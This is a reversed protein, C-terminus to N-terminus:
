VKESLIPALNPLFPAFPIDQEASHVQVSKLRVDPAEPGQHVHFSRSKDPLPELRSCDCVSVAEGHGLEDSM